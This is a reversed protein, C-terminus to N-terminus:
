RALHPGTQYGQSGPPWAGCRQQQRPAKGAGSRRGVGGM